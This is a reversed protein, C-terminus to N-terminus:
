QAMIKAFEADTSEASSAQALEALSPEGYDVGLSALSDNIANLADRIGQEGDIVSKLRLDNITNQIRVRTEALRRQEVEILVLKKDLSALMNTRVAVREKLYPIKRNAEVVKQRAVALSVRFGGLVVHDRKAEVSARYASKAADIFATLAKTQAESGDIERRAESKAVHTQHSAVDLRRAYDDLEALKAQCYETPHRAQNEATWQTNQRIREQRQQERVINPVDHAADNPRVEGNLARGAKNLRSLAEDRSEQSCGGLYAIGAVVVVGAVLLKIM